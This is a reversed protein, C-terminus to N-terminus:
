PDPRQGASGISDPRGFSHRAPQPVRRVLSRLRQDVPFLPRGKANFQFGVAPFGRKDPTPYARTLYQGTVRRDPKNYVVLIERVKQGNRDIERQVTETRPSGYLEIQTRKGNHEQWGVERWAAIVEGEHRLVPDPSAQAQRIIDKHKRQNALIAFELTGLRTMQKKKQEVVERDAGPIIVEIRDSGVQRVTIQEQAAPDLRRGIAGIMRQMVESTIHKKEEAVKQTDVQFILDAGGALDIGLRVADKLSHGQAVRMGFPTVALVFAFLIIGMKMAQDKMRLARALFSGAVFPIVIVCIVLLFM